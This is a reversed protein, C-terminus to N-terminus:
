KTTKLLPEPMEYVKAFEREVAQETINVYRKFSKWDRHGTIKMVLEPRLGRELSLTVFTRRGTHCGLKEWKPVTSNLREGGKYRVVELPSDIGALQGLQKLYFNLKQNTILRVGGALYRTVILLARAQLPISVTERTKQTTIRLMHGRVHESRISVLDSYRLGTYCSLLFLMRANDLYGGAPLDLAELAAVEEATLTMIDPEQRRWNLKQYSANTHFGRDAAYKMFRKLRSVMKEITNDTLGATTLLYATYRDGFIPTITDFDVAYGKAEQFERLHRLATAYTQATRVKGRDRTLAIWENFYDWFTLAAQTPAEVEEPLALIRLAESTPLLGLARQEGYYALLKKELLELSDNLKGNSAYGRVKARQDAKIWQKPHVSLGSYVKVRRGDFSLFAFIATPKDAKPEKLHFSVTAM